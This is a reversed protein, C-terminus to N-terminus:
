KVLLTLFRKGERRGARVLVKKGKYKKLLEELASITRVPRDNIEIIVDGPIIGAKAAQTGPEVRKILVGKLNKLKLTRSLDRTLETVTVGISLEVEEEEDNAEKKVEKPEEMRAIVAHLTIRKGNRIVEIPVKKGVPTSAVMLPLDSYERVRKGDYKVIIDKPKFGAREAPKGPQVDSVLAGYPEKVHFMEALDVTVQQIIVGLVGRTVKGRDKLQLIIDRALNIPIAFGIGINFGTGGLQTRGPSFIATNIGVVQGHTNFLPGGSSGPNISADTQIFQDYPGAKSSPVRRSKASVIGATVTQGLQFQNGIAVVWDGVQLKDSDGFYVTKLKYPPKIKLLAIDTKADRGVIRAHYDKKDNLLRVIVQTGKSIVHNNTVIYGDDSIIFGTGLARWPSEPQHKFFPHAKDDSKDDEDEENNVAINVVAPRLEKILEAFSPLESIARAGQSKYVAPPMGEKIFNGGNKEALAFDSFAILVSLFLLARQWCFLNLKTSHSNRGSMDWECTIYFRKLYSRRM